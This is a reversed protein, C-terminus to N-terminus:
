KLMTYYLHPQSIVELMFGQLLDVRADFYFIIPLIMGNVVLTPPYSSLDSVKREIGGM